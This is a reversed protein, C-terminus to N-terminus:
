KDRLDTLVRLLELQVQSNQLQIDALQKQQQQQQQLVQQQRQNELHMNMVDQQHKHAEAQQAFMMSQQQQQQNFISEFFNQKEQDAKLRQEELAIRKIEIESKSKRGEEILEKLVISKRKTPRDQKQLAQNRVDNLEKKETAAAQEKEKAQKALEESAERTREYADNLLQDLEDYDDHVGSARAAEKKKKQFDDM